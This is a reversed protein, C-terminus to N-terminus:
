KMKANKINRRQIIIFKCQVIFFMQDSNTIFHGVSKPPTGMSINTYINFDIFDSISKSAQLYEITLKKFPFVLSQGYIYSICLFLFIM